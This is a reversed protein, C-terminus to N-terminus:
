GAEGMHAQGGHAISPTCFHEFPGPSAFRPQHAGGVIAAARACVVCIRVAEVVHQPSPPLLAAQLQRTGLCPADRATPVALCAFPAELHQAARPPPALGALPLRVERPAGGARCEPASQPAEWRPALLMTRSSQGHQALPQVGGATPGGMVVADVPSSGAPLLAAVFGYPHHERPAM